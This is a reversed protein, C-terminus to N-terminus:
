SPPATCRSGPSPPMTARELLEMRMVEVGGEELVFLVPPGPLTRDFHYRAVRPSGDPAHEAVTYLWTDFRGAAVEVTADTVMTRESPFVAHSMLEAWTTQADGGDVMQGQDDCSVTAVSCSAADAATWTWREEMTPMGLQAYRVLITTGVPFAARFEELTVPPSV